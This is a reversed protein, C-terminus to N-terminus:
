SQKEQTKEKSTTQGTVLVDGSHIENALHTATCGRTTCMVCEDTTHKTDGDRCLEVASTLFLHIVKERAHWCRTM